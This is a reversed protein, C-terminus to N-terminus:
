SLIIPPDAMNCDEPQTIANHYKDTQSIYINSIGSDYMDIDHEACTPTINVILTTPLITCLVHKESTKAMIDLIFTIQIIPYWIDSTNILVSLRNMNVIFVAGHGFKYQIQGCIELICTWSRAGTQTINWRYNLEDGESTAM